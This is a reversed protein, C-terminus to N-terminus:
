SLAARYAQMTAEACREWTFERARARRVAEDPVDGRVVQHLADTLAQADGVPFRIGADGTVEALVPIDSTIVPVGAALAEIAPMGFGEEISPLVLGRSAAVVSPLLAQPLYGALRVGGAGAAAHDTGWGAPGVVLLDPCGAGVQARLERHAALLTDLGKRPERTGVFVFYDAPIGNMAREDITLAPPDFWDPGVGPPAVFIRDLPFGFEDAIARKTVAALTTVAAARRLARPVLVALDQNETRLTGHHTHWVLDHVSVVGAAHRSPPLVFNTGHVVDARGALWEVPPFDMRQWAKRLLRAPFPRSRAAVGPPLTRALDRWGRLTFATAAVSVDTRGALTSMLHETYRGIGTRQGLLPTADM